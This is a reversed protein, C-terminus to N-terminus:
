VPVMGPNAPAPFDGMARYRLERELAAKEMELTELSQRPNGTFFSMTNGTRAVIIEREVTALRARLQPETMAGPLTTNASGAALPLAQNAAGTASTGTNWIAASANFTASPVGVSVVSLPLMTVTNSADSQWGWRVSGYYTGAQAGAVALATTEFIQSANAGHTPLTPRDYLSADHSFSIGFVEFRYGAETNSEATGSGLPAPAAGAERVGYLPSASDTWNDIHTGAGPKASPISRGIVTPNISIPTGNNVSNVAQVLAIQTANVGPGPKFRLRNIEVGIDQTGDNVVSYADTDWLGGLTELARQVGLPAADLGLEPAGGSQQAVHALEHALLPRGAGSEPQYRGPAFAIDSGHTYAAAGVARASAGALADTHVRVGGLDRGLRREFYARTPSPLPAGASGLAARLHGPGDGVARGMARAGDSGDLLREAGRHAAHEHGDHAARVPLAPGRPPAAQALAARRPRALPPAFM